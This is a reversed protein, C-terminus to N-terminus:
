TLLYVITKLWGILLEDQMFSGAFQLGLPLGASTIGSPVSITPLGMYTWPLNMLPSGTSTLGPLAATCSSPSLWLDIQHQNKLKEFKVRLSKMGQKAEAREEQHVTKGELILERTNKRYLEGYDQFWKKHVEAFEAAIINRHAINIFEIDGFADSKIIKCGNNELHHIKEEFFQLVEENAQKLYNGTVVGIVPKREPINIVTNWQKCLIAAVMEIGPLDQTFFGVHDASESFPIIGDTSIRTISPKYGYVGCFSAPRTISGITQTGLALPTYGCAVAAASGSSSGGPTHTPLHPNCTPGPEFYAFETTITKGLILAGAKKLTTVVSSEKGEFLTEPLNSGAKTPFGDLRFIDKVGVPIGFLAPRGFPTPYERKLERAERILRERRGPEPLLAHITPEVADIRDCIQNIYEEPDIIGSRLDNVSQSLYLPFTYNM